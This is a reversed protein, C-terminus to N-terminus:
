PLNQAHCIIIKLGVLWLFAPHAIRVLDTEGVLLRGLHARAEGLSLVTQRRIRERDVLALVAIMPMKGTAFM